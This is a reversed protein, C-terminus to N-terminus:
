IKLTGITSLPEEKLKPNDKIDKYMLTYDKTLERLADRALAEDYKAAREAFTLIRRTGGKVPSYNEDM